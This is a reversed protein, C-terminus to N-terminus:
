GTVLSQGVVSRIVRMDSVRAGGHREVAVRVEEVVVEVGYGVPEIRNREDRGIGFGRALDSTIRIGDSPVRRDTSRVELRSRRKAGRSRARVPM